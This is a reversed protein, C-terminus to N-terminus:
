ERLLEAVGLDPLQGSIQSSQSASKDSMSRVERDKVVSIVFTVSFLVFIQEAIQDTYIL